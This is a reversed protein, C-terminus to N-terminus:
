LSRARMAGRLLAAAIVVLVAGIVAWIAHGSMFSGGLADVGQLIWVIGVLLLLIAAVVRMWM